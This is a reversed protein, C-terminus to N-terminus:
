PVARAFFEREVADLRLRERGRLYARHEIAAEVEPLRRGLTFAAGDPEGRSWPVPNYDLVQRELGLPEGLRWALVLGWRLKRAIARGIEHLQPFACSACCPLKEARWRARLSDDLADLYRVNARLNELEARMTTASM